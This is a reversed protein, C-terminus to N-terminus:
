LKEYEIAPASAEGKGKRWKDREADRQRDANEKSMQVNVKAMVAEAVM